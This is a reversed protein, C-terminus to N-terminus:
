GKGYAAFSIAAIRDYVGAGAAIVMASGLLKVWM